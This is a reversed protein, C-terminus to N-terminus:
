VEGFSARPIARAREIECPEEVPRYRTDSDNSWEVPFEAAKLGLKSAIMLAEIDFM